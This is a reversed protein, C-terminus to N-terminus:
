QTSGRYKGGREHSRGKRHGGPLTWQIDAVFGWGIKNRAKGVEGKKEKWMKGRKNGGGGSTKPGVLGGVIRPGWV